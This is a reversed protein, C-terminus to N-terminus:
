ERWEASKNCERQLSERAIRRGQSIITFANALAMNTHTWVLTALHMVIFAPLTQGAWPFNKAFLRKAIDIINTNSIKRCKINQQLEYQIKEM